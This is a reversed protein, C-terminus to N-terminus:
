WSCFTSHSELFGWPDVDREEHMRVVVDRPSGHELTWDVLGKWELDEPDLDCLADLWQMAKLPDDTEQYTATPMVGYGIWTVLRFHSPTPPPPAAHMPLAYADALPGTM